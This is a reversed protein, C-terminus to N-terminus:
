PEMWRSELIAFIMWAPANIECSHHVDRLLCSAPGLSITGAEGKSEHRFVPVTAEFDDDVSSGRWRYNAKLLVISSIVCSIEVSLHGFSFLIGVNSTLVVTKFRGQESATSAWGGYALLRFTMTSALFKLLLYQDNQKRVMGYRIM